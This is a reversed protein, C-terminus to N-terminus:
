DDDIELTFPGPSKEVFDKDIIVIVTKLLGPPRENVLDDRNRISVKYRGIKLWLSLVNPPYGAFNKKNLLSLDNVNKKISSRSPSLVRKTLVKNKDKLSLIEFEVFHSSNNVALGYYLGKEPRDLLSASNAHRETDNMPLANIAYSALVIYIILKLAKM